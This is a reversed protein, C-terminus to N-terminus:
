KKKIITRQLNTLSRSILFGSLVFFIPVGFGFIKAMILVNKYTGSTLISDNVTFFSHALFTSFFALTRISDLNKFHLKTKM